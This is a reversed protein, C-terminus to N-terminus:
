PWFLRPLRRLFRQPREVASSPDDVLIRSTTSAIITDPCTLESAAALLERKLGVVEPVVEFLLDATALGAALDSSPLISIRKIITEINSDQM